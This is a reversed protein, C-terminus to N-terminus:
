QISVARYFQESPGASGPPALLQSDGNATLYKFTSWHVVFIASFVQLVQGGYGANKM